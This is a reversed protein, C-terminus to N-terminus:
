IYEGVLSLVSNYIDLTPIFINCIEQNGKVAVKYNGCTGRQRCTLPGDPHRDRWAM